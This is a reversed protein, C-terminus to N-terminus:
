FSNNNFIIEEIANNNFEVRYETPSAFLLQEKSKGFPNKIIALYIGESTFYVRYIYFRENHQEAAIWENRTFNVRDWYQILDPKTARKTSKVEIYRAFESHNKDRSAEISLVDYGLGKTRGQHIVKNVLRPNFNSVFEKEYNLVYTEGEDGIEMKNSLTKDPISLASLTTSFINIDILNNQGYYKEWEMNMLSIQNQDNLNYKYVDFNLPKSLNKIFYDIVPLEKLNISVYEDELRILNAFVLYDFQEKIHQWNYSLAKQPNGIRYETNLKRYSLIENLVTDSTVNGRLVDLNNLCFYGIEKNTLKVKINNAKLLLDLVFHYPKISIRNAVKDKITKLSQSSNPQQFNYCLSKFFLPQDFDRLYQKTIESLHIKGNEEYIMGLISKVNETRHNKIAKQSIGLKFSLLKDFSESFQEANIPCLENLSEAYFPLLDDMKTISKGRIISCRHQNNPNYSM